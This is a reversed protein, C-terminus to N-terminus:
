ECAVGSDECVADELRDELRRVRASLFQALGIALGPAEELLPLLDNRDLRLLQTTQIAIADASRAAGDLM